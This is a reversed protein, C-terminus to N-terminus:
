MASIKHKLDLIEKDITPKLEMESHLKCNLFWILIWIIGYPPFLPNVLILRIYKNPFRQIIKDEYWEKWRITMSKRDEILQELLQVLEIRRIEKEAAIRDLKEKQKQDELAIREKQKQEELAIRKQEQKTWAIAESVDPDRELLLALRRVESMTSEFAAKNERGRILATGIGLELVTEIIGKLSFFKVSPAEECSSSSFEDVIKQTNYIFEEMQSQLQDRQLMEQQIALGRLNLKRIDAMEGQLGSLSDSIHGMTATQQFMINTQLRQQNLMDQYDDFQTMQDSRFYVEKKALNDQWYNYTQCFASRIYGVKVEEAIPLNQEGPQLNAKLM